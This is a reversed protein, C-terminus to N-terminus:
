MFKGTNKSGSSKYFLPFWGNPSYAAVSHSCTQTLWEETLLGTELVYSSSVLYIFLYCWAFARNKFSLIYFYISKEFSFNCIALLSKFVHEVDKTMLFICLFAAKPNM